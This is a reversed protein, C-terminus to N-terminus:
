RSEIVHSKLRKRLNRYINSNEPHSLTSNALDNDSIGIFSSGGMKLTHVDTFDILYCSM